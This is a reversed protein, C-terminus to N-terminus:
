EVKNKGMNVLKLISLLQVPNEKNMGMLGFNCHSNAKEKGKREKENRKREKKGAWVICELCLGGEKNAKWDKSPIAEKFYGSFQHQFTSPSPYM